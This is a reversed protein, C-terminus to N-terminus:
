KALLSDGAAMLLSLGRWGVTRGRGLHPLLSGQTHTHLASDPWPRADPEALAPWPVQWPRLQPSGRHIHSSM